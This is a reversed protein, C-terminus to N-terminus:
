HRRTGTSGQTNTGHNCREIGTSFTPNIEIDAQVREIRIITTKNVCGVISWVTLALAVWLLGGVIITGVKYGNWTFQPKM